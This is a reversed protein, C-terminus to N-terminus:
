FNPVWEISNLLSRILVYQEENEFNAEINLLYDGYQASFTLEYYIEDDDKIMFELSLFPRNAISDIKIDYIFFNM